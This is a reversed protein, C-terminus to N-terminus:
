GCGRLWHLFPNRAMWTLGQSWRCRFTWAQGVSAGHLLRSVLLNRQRKYWNSADSVKCDGGLGNSEGDPRKVPSGHSGNPSVSLKGELEGLPLKGISM